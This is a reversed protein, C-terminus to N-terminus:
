GKDGRYDLAGHMASIDSHYERLHEDGEQDCAERSEAGVNNHRNPFGSPM